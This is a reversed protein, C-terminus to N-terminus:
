AYTARKKRWPSQVFSEISLQRKVVTAPPCNPNGHQSLQLLVCARSVDLFWADASTLDELLLRMYAVYCHAQVAAHGRCSEAKSLIRTLVAACGFSRWNGRDQWQGKAVLLLCVVNGINQKLHVRHRSHLSYMSSWQNYTYIHTHIGTYSYLCIYVCM